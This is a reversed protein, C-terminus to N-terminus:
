ESRPWSSFTERWYRASLFCALSARCCLFASWDFPFSFAVPELDGVGELSSDCSSDSSPESLSSSSPSSPSSIPLFSLLFSPLFFSSASSSSSSTELSLLSSSSSASSAPVSSASVALCRGLPLRRFFDPFGLIRGGRTVSMYLTKSPEARITKPANM